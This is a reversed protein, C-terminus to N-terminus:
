SYSLWWIDQIESSLSVDTLRVFINAAWKRLLSKPINFSNAIAEELASKPLCCIGVSVAMSAICLIGRAIPFEVHLKSTACLEVSFRQLEASIRVPLYRPIYQVYKRVQGQKGM